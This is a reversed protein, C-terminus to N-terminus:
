PVEGKEQKKLIEQVLQVRLKGPLDIRSLKWQWSALSLKVKFQKDPSKDPPLRVFFEGLGYESNWWTQWGSRLATESFPILDGPVKAAGGASGKTLLEM